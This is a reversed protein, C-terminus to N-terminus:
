DITLVMKRNEVKNEGTVSNLQRHFKDLHESEAAKFGTQVMAEYCDRKGSGGVLDWVYFLGDERILYLKRGFM